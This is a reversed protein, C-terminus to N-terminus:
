RAYSPLEIERGKTAGTHLNTMLATEHEKVVDKPNGHVLPLALM